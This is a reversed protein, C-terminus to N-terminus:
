SVVHLNLCKVGAADLVLRSHHVCRTDVYRAESTTSLTLMAVTGAASASSSANAKGSRHLKVGSFGRITFLNSLRESSTARTLVVYVHQTASDHAHRHILIQGDEGNGTGRSQICIEAGAPIASTSKFHLHVHQCHQADVYTSAEKAKSALARSRLTWLPTADVTCHQLKDVKEPKWVPLTRCHDQLSSSSLLFVDASMLCVRKPQRKGPM